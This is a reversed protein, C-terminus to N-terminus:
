LLSDSQTDTPQDALWNTRLDMLGDMSNHILWVIIGNNFWSPAENATQAKNQGVELPSNSIRQFCGINEDLWIM